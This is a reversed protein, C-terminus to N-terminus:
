NKAKFNKFLKLAANIAPIRGELVDKEINKLQQKVKESSFFDEELFGKISDYMWQLNQRSRNKEFYGNEKIQSHYKKILEWIGKMGTKELSSATVVKTKWGTEGAPFTELIREIEAKVSEAKKINQGDAKNVVILDSIEIIGKKIIQLEDGAGTLTMLLFFDVIDHVQTEIQGVGVTEILIIEYGAAECLLIAERTRRTIGGSSKGTSSPRIFAMPDNSLEEMRTKDGLISGRTLKSSPDVALVAVKKNQSTLHKGFAEIFTSKGAGPVGTIGIRLSKGTLPMVKELLKRALTNDEALNSEVLTIAKSLLTRDGEKIGKLYKDASLRKQM